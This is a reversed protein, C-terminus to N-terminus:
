IMCCFKFKKGSGCYCIEYKENLGNVMDKRLLHPRSGKAILLDFAIERTEKPANLQNKIELTITKKERQMRQLEWYAKQYTRALEIQEKTYKSEKTQKAKECERTFNIQNEIVDKKALEDVLNTM